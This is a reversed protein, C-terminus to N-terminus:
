NLILRKVTGIDIFIIRSFKNRLSSPSFILLFMIEDIKLDNQKSIIRRLDRKSIKADSLEINSRVIHTKTHGANCVLHIDRVTIGAKEEAIQVTNGVATSFAEINNIEGGRLGVSEQIADGIVNLEGTKNIEAIIAALKSTGADLVAFTANSKQKTKVM